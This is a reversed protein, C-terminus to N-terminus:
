SPARQSQRELLEIELALKRLELASKQRALELMGDGASFLRDVKELLRDCRELTAMSREALQLAEAMLALGTQMLQPGLDIMPEGNKLTQNLTEILESAKGYMTAVGRSSRFARRSELPSQLSAAGRIRRRGCPCWEPKQPM